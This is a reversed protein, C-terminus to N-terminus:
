ILNFNYSTYKYNQTRNLIYRTLTNLQDKQYNLNQQHFDLLKNKNACRNESNTELVLTNKQSM